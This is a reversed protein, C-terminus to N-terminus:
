NTNDVIVTDTKGKEMSSKLAAVLKKFDNSSTTAGAVTDVQDANQKEILSDSLKKVYDAPYTEPKGANKNGTMMSEKYEEDQSKKKGDEAVADYVVTDIKGSKVTIEVYDTYGHSPEKMQARYTGDKLEATTDSCGALLAGALAVAVLAAFYKKVM